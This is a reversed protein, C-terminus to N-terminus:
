EMLSKLDKQVQKFKDEIKQRAENWKEESKEDLENIQRELNDADQELNHLKEKLMENDKVDSLKRNLKQTKQDIDDLVKNAKSKFDVKESEFLDSIATGVDNLEKKLQQFNEESADTTEEKNQKKQVSNCAVFGFSLVAVVAILLLKRKM